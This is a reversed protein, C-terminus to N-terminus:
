ITLLFCSRFASNLKTAIYMCWSQIDADINKKKLVAVEVAAICDKSSVVQKGEKDIVILAPDAKM